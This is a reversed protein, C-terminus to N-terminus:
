PCSDMSSLRLTRSSSESSWSEFLYMLCVVDSAAKAQGQEQQQAAKKKKEKEAAKAAKKLASKSPAKDESPSFTENNFLVDL